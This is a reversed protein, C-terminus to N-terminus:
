KITFEFSRVNKIVFSRWGNDDLDFVAIYDKSKSTEVLQRKTERKPLKDEQLTCRMTRETGDKKMFTITVTTKSLADTILDKFKEWERETWDKTSDIKTTEM